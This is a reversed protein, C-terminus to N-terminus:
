MPCKQEGVQKIEIFDAFRPTISLMESQSDFRSFLIGLKDFPAVDLRAGSNKLPVIDVHNAPISYSFSSYALPRGVSITHRGYFLAKSEPINKPFDMGLFPRVFLDTYDIGSSLRILEGYLDGPCRRMTEIIRFDDGIVMFQTHILGDALGLSTVIHDICARVGDRIQESLLSPHHSCNVQYPYVTCFEDVFFDLAIRGNQLYASHSHLSGELFEELVVKGSQSAQAAEQIAQPLHGSDTVRSMGRGSFSDVPKVLLPYRLTALDLPQDHNIEMFWPAPISLRKTVARFLNKTHLQTSVDLIDFGLFPHNAAVQACSMYSYDNCSPVLFDFTGSNVVSLLEDPRSYDIYYSSDAYQHCPDGEIKGCVSVNIGHKKLAFLIPVASFSSGVLLANKENM